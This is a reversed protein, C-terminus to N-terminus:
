LCVNKLQEMKKADRKKQSKELIKERNDWYYSKSRTLYKTPNDKYYGKIRDRNKQPDKIPSNQNVVKLGIEKLYKIWYAELHYRESISCEDILSIKCEHFNCHEDEIVKESTYKMCEPRTKRKRYNYNHQALRTTIYKCTTSGVYINDNEDNYVCYIFTM